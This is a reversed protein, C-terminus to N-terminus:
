LSLPACTTPLIHPAHHQTSHRGSGHMSYILRSFCHNFSYSIARWLLECADGNGRSDAGRFPEGPFEHRFPGKTAPSGHQREHSSRSHTQPLDPDFLALPVSAFDILLCNLVSILPFDTDHNISVCTVFGNEGACCPWLHSGKPPMSRSPTQSPETQAHVARISAPSASGHLWRIM